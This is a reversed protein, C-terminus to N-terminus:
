PKPSMNIPTDHACGDSGSSNQIDLKARCQFQHTINIPTAEM